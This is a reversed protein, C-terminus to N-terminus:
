ELLLNKLSLIKTRYGSQTPFDNKAKIQTKMIKRFFNFETELATNM